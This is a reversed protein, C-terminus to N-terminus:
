GPTRRPRIMKIALSTENIIISSSSPAMCAGASGLFALPIGIVIWEKRVPRLIGTVDLSSFVCDKRFDCATGNMVNYCVSGFLGVDHIPFM